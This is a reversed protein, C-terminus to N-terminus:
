EVDRNCYQQYLYRQYCILDFSFALVGFCCGWTSEKKCGLWEGYMRSIPIPNGMNDFTIMPWGKLGSMPPFMATVDKNPPFGASAATNFLAQPDSFPYKTPDLPNLPPYTSPYFFQPLMPQPLFAPFNQNIAPNQQLAPPRIFKNYQHIGKVSFPMAPPETMM